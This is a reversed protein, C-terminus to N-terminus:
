IDNQKSFSEMKICALLSCEALFFKHIYIAATCLADYSSSPSCNDASSHFEGMISVIERCPKGHVMIERCTPLSPYYLITFHVEGRDQVRSCCRAPSPDHSSWQRDSEIITGVDCLRTSDSNQSSIIDEISFSHTQYSCMQIFGGKFCFILNVHLLYSKNSTMDCRTLVRAHLLETNNFSNLWATNIFYHPFHM